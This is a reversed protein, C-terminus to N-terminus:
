EKAKKLYTERDKQFTKEDIINDSMEKPIFYLNKNKGSEQICCQHMITSILNATIFYEKKEDDIFTLGYISEEGIFNIELKRIKGGSNIRYKGLKKNIDNM